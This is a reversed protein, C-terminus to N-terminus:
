KVTFCCLVIPLTRDPAVSRQCQLYSVLVRQDPTSYGVPKEPRPARWCSAKVLM